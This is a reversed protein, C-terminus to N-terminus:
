RGLPIDLLRAATQGMVAEIDQQNLALSRFVRQYDRELSAIEEHRVASGFLIRGWSNGAADEEWLAAHAPRLLGGVFDAGKRRLLDGSLDFFVNPHHRLAEAAEECWPSGLGVGVVKLRPFCRAITDLYVPRMNECRVGKARDLPTAPLYGTHFLVPMALAEAAEYVPFFPGHDYPAPPACVSLGRFGVRHLREVTSPGDEGLSLHAFPVYLEPYDEALRRVEANAALGYQSEGACICLRDLGLNKATEALAEGYGTEDHLHVHFDILMV